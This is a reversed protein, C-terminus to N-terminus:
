TTINKCWDDESKKLLTMETEVLSRIHVLLKLLSFVYLDNIVSLIKLINPRILIYLVYVLLNEFFTKNDIKRQLIYNYVDCTCFFQYRKTCITHVCRESWRESKFCVSTKIFTSFFLFFRTSDSPTKIM